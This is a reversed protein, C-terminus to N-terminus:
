HLKVMSLTKLESRTMNIREGFATQTIGIEKRISLFRENIKEM